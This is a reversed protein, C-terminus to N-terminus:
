ACGSIFKTRVVADGVMYSGIAYSAGASGGKALYERAVSPIGKKANEQSKYGDRAREFRGNAFRIICWEIHSHVSKGM